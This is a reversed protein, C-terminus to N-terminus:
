SREEENLLTTKHKLLKFAYAYTLTALVIILHSLKWQAEGFIVWSRIFDVFVMSLVFSSNGPYERRLITKWSFPIEGKQYRSFKPFFANTFKAWNLYENGFEQVLFDEESLIIREYYLWFLLCFILVFYPNFTYLVIGLWILFNSFYLPNRTMSYMESTNLIKAEHGWINRGSTHKPTTGVTWFRFFFGAFSVILCTILLAVDLWLVEEFLQYESLYISPIALVFLVLPIQGRYKFLFNGQRVMTDQLSMSFSHNDQM